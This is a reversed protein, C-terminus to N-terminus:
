KEVVTSSSVENWHAKISDFVKREEETQPDRLVRMWRSLTSGDKKAAEVAALTPYEAVEAFYHRSM